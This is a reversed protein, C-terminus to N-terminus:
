KVDLRFGAGFANVLSLDPDKALYKRLKTIYVDMSRGAFYDTQNWVNKLLFERSVAKNKNAILIKLLNAEKITLNQESGDLKLTKNNYDLTYKGIPYIEVKEIMESNGMMTKSRRLVAEIRLLLEEIIFPKTIYDDAGAVFGQIKDEKQDRSTLFIIPINKDTKRIEKAIEYGNKKPLSIDLLCLDFKQKGYAEIALEGDEFAIVQYSNLGLVDKLTYRISFDDEALLIKATFKDM